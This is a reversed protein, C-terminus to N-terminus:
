GRRGGIAFADWPDRDTAVEYRAVATGLASLSFPKALVEVDDMRAHALEARVWAVAHGTMMVVPIRHATRAWVALDVGTCSDGLDFDVLLLSSREAALAHLADEVSSARRSEYGLAELARSMARAVVMDDDIILISM